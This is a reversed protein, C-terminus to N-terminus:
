RGEARNRVWPIVVPMLVITTLLFVWAAGIVRSPWSTEGKLTALVAFAAAALFSVGLYVAAAVASPNRVAKASM